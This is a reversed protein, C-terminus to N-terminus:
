YSSVASLLQSWGQHNTEALDQPCATLSPPGPSGSLHLQLINHHFIVAPSCSTFLVDEFTQLGELFRKLFILLAFLSCSYIRVAMTDNSDVLGNLCDRNRIAGMSWPSRSLVPSLIHQSVMDSTFAHSIFMYSMHDKHARSLGESGSNEFRRDTQFGMVHGAM